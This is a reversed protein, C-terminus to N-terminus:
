GGLESEDVGAEQSLPGLGPPADDPGVAEALTTEGNALAFLGTYQPNGESVDEGALQREHLVVQALQQDSLAAFSPMLGGGGVRKGQAGYTDSPWGDTGLKVWMLHDRWDPWTEVVDGDALAPASVGQGSAGHCSACAPSAETLYLETGLVLPDTEGTPAPELTRVYVYGWIPLAALVPMAWYPIRKRNRAAQIYAPEPKPPAARAEEVAGTPAAAPTSAAAAPVPASDAPEAEEGRGEAPGSAPTEGGELGLAARRERSRKLLHEPIETL